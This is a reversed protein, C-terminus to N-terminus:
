SFRVDAPQESAAIEGLTPRRIVRLHEGDREVFGRRAFDNLWYDMCWRGWRDHFRRANRIIADFHQLPPKHITHHQHYCITGGVWNLQAESIRLREAFDTEEGGYGIYSEDMGGAAEWTAHSLIFSLGWLEGFDDIPATSCDALNPKAPHREGARELEEYLPMGDRALWKGGTAPLYRVEPLFVDKKGLDIVERARRVFHRDPICDVDLFALITGEAANAAVNRAKALPLPEGDVRVCRVAFPLDEPYDPPDAQMYAVVLEDPQSVQARLGAVLNDFHPQRGRILTLVSLANFATM